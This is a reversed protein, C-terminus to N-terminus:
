LATDLLCNCCDNGFKEFWRLRAEPVGLKKLAAQAVETGSAVRVVTQLYGEGVATFADLGPLAARAINDGAAGFVATLTESIQTGTVSAVGATSRRM